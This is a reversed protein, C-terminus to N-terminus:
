GRRTKTTVTGDWEELPACHWAWGSLRPQDAFDTRGNAWRLQEWPDTVNSVWPFLRLLVAAALDPDPHFAQGLGRAADDTHILIEDCAMAAFGSPDAMGFPHFGRATSPTAEIVAAIVEAYAALTDVVDAPSTDTKVRHEVSALDNGAAALDIAYWLCTEAVHAVVGTISFDLGPVSANWDRDMSGRLFSVCDRATRRVDSSTMTM